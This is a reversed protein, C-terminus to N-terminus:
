RVAYNIIQVTEHVSSGKVQGKEELLPITRITLMGEHGLLACDFLQM